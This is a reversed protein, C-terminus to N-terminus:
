ELDCRRVDGRLIFTKPSMLTVKEGNFDCERSRMGEPAASVRELPVDIRSIKSNGKVPLTMM